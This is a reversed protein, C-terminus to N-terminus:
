IVVLVDERTEDALYADRSWVIRVVPSDELGDPIMDNELSPSEDRWLRKLVYPQSKTTDNVNYVDWVTTGSGFMAASRALSLAKVTDYEEVAEGESRGTIRWQLARIAYVGPVRRLSM